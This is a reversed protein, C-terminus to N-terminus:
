SSKGIMRRFGVMARARYGSPMGGVNVRVTEGKRVYRGTPQQDSLQMITNMRKMEAEASPLPTFSYRGSRNDFNTASAASAIFAL